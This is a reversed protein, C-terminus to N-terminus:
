KFADYIATTSENEVAHEISKLLGEIEPSEYPKGFFNALALALHSKGHGYTAIVVHCNPNGSWRFSDRIYDLVDISSVYGTTSNKTFIYGTALPINREDSPYWGLQVANAFRANENPLVVDQILLSM